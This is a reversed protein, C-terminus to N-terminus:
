RGVSLTSANRSLKYSHRSGAVWAARGGLGCPRGRPMTATDAYISSHPHGCLEIFDAVDGELGFGGVQEELEDGAAVLSGAEDDGAVLGEAAPALHEAVVDDGGGHDVAEDVV